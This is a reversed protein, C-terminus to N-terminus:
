FIVTLPPWIGCPRSKWTGPSIELAAKQATAAAAPPAAPAAPKPASAGAPATGGRIPADYFGPPPTNGSEAWWEPSGMVTANGSLIMMAVMIPVAVVGNVVSKEDIMRGVPIYENGKATVAATLQQMRVIFSEEAQTRTPRDFMPRFSRLTAVANEDLIAEARSFMEDLVGRDRDDAPRAPRVYTRYVPCAIVLAALVASAPEGSLLLGINRIVVKGSVPHAAAEAM